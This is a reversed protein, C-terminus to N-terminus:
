LYNLRSLRLLASAAKHFSMPAVPAHTINLIKVSEPLPEDLRDSPSLERLHAEVDLPERGDSPRGDAHRIDITGNVVSWTGVQPSPIYLEINQGEPDDLYTTKSIVHDTPYNRYRM